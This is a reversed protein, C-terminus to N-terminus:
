EAMVGSAQNYYIDFIRKLQWKEPNQKDLEVRNFDTVGMLEDAQIAYSEIRIQQISDYYDEDEVFTKLQIKDFLPETERISYDQTVNDASVLVSRYAFLYSNTNNDNNTMDILYWHSNYNFDELMYWSSMYLNKESQETISEPITETKPTVPDDSIMRFIEMNENGPIREAGNFSFPNKLTNDDKVPEAEIVPVTIKMFVFADNQGVNTIRPDKPVISHPVMVRSSIDDPYEPETIVIDVDGIKFINDTNKSDTLYAIVTGVAVSAALVCSLILLKTRKNKIKM